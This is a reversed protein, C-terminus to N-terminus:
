HYGSWLSRNLPAEFICSFAWFTSHFIWLLVAKLFGMADEVGVRAWDVSHRLLKSVFIESQFSKLGKGNVDRQFFKIVCRDGTKKPIHKLFALDPSYCKSRPVMTKTFSRKWFTKQVGSFSFCFTVYFTGRIGRNSSRKRITGHKSPNTHIHSRAM